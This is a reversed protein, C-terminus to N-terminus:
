IDENRVERVTGLDIGEVTVLPAVRAIKYGWHHNYNWVCEEMEPLNNAEAAGLASVIAAWVSWGQGTRGDHHQFTFM